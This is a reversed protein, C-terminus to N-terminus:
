AGPAGVLGVPLARGKRRPLLSRQGLPGAHERKPADASRERERRATNLEALALTARRQWLSASQGGAVAIAERLDAQAAALDDGATRHLEARVRLLEPLYWREGSANVQDIAEAVLAFAQGVQGLGGLIGAMLGRYYPLKLRSGTAVKAALGKVFPLARRLYEHHRAIIYAVLRPTSLSRPDAVPLGQGGEKRSEVAQRLESLLTDLPVDREKAAEEVSQNGRCCFDIRHRAFVEACESHDLVVSAVSQSQSIM